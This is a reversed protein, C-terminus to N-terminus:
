GMTKGKDVIKVGRLEGWPRGRYVQVTVGEGGRRRPDEKERGARRGRGGGSKGAPQGGAPQRGAEHRRCRRGATTIKYMITKAQM